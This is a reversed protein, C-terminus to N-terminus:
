SLWIVFILSMVTDFWSQDCVLLIPLLALSTKCLISTEFQLQNSCIKQAHMPWYTKSLPVVATKAEITLPLFSTLHMFSMKVWPKKPFKSLQLTLDLLNGWIDSNRLLIKKDECLFMVNFSKDVWFNALLLESKTLWNKAYELVSVMISYIKVKYWYFFNM